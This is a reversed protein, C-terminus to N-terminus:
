AEGHENNNGLHNARTSGEVIRINRFLDFAHVKFSCVIIFAHLLVILYLLSHGFHGLIYHPEWKWKTTIITVYLFHDPHSLNIWYDQILTDLPPKSLGAVTWEVVSEKPTGDNFHAPVSVPMHTHIHCHTWNDPCCCFAFSFHECTHALTHTNRTTPQRCQFFPVRATDM